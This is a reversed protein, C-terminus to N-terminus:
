EVEVTSMPAWFTTDVAFSLLMNTSAPRRHSASPDRSLRDVFEHLKLQWFQDTFLIWLHKCLLLALTWRMQYWLLGDFSQALRFGVVYISLMAASEISPPDMVALQHTAHTPTFGTLACSKGWFACRRWGMLGRKRKVFEGDPEESNRDCKLISSLEHM